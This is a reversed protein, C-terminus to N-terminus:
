AARERHVHTITAMWLLRVTLLAAARATLSGRRVATSADFRVQEDM